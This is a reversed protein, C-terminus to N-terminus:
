AQEEDQPDRKGPKKLDTTKRFASTTTKAKAAAQEEQAEDSDEDEAPTVVQAEAKGPGSELAMSQYAAQLSRNKM